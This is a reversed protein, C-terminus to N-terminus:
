ATPPDSSEEEASKQSDPDLMKRRGEMTVWLAKSPSQLTAVLGAGASQMLGLLQGRLTPLDGLNTIHKLAATDITQGGVKDVKAGLLLMKSVGSIFLPDTGKKFTAKEPFLLNLVALIHPPSVTPFQIVGVPGVLLAEMPHSGRYQLTMDYAEPGSSSGVKADKPLYEAVRLAASFLETNVVVMKVQEGVPRPEPPINGDEDPIPAPQSAAVQADVNQMAVRLDRRIAVLESGRLNNHQFVVMLPTARLLSIYTRHLLTQRSNYPRHSPPQNSGPPVCTKSHTVSHSAYCRQGGNVFAEIFYCADRFSISTRTPLKTRAAAKLFISPPM